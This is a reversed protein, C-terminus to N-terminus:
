LYYESGYGTLQRIPVSFGELYLVVYYSSQLWSMLQWLESFQGRTIPVFWGQFQLTVTSLVILVVSTLGGIVLKLIVTLASEATEVRLGRGRDIFTRTWENDLSSSDAKASTGM